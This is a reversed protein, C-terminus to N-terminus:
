VSRAGKSETGGAEGRPKEGRKRRPKDVSGTHIGEEEVEEEKVEGDNPHTRCVSACLCDRTENGEVGAFFSFSKRGRGTTKKKKGRTQMLNQIRSTDRLQCGQLSGTLDIPNAM